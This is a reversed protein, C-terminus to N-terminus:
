GTQAEGSKVKIVAEKKFLELSNIRAKEYDLCIQFYNEFKM